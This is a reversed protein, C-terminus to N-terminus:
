QLHKLQSADQAAAIQLVVCHLIDKIWFPAFKGQTGVEEVERRGGVEDFVPTEAVMDTGLMTGMAPCCHARHWSGQSVKTRHELPWTMPAWSQPQKSSYRNCNMVPSLKPVNM